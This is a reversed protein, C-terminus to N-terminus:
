ATASGSFAIKLEVRVRVESVRTDIVRDPNPLFVVRREAVKAQSGTTTQVRACECLMELGDEQEVDGAPPARAISRNNSKDYLLQRRTRADYM